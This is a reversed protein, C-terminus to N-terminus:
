LLLRVPGARVHCQQGPGAPEAPGLVDPGCVSLLSGKLPVTECSPLPYVLQILRFTETFGIVGSKVNRFKEAEQLM